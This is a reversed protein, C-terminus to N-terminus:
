SMQVGRGLRLLNRCANVVAAPHLDRLCALNRHCLDATARYCPSCSMNRRIGVSLEGQPGWERADVVGSHIGVTPVGLGAAIHKPGSDNGVFLACSDIFYSLEDLKLQGVLDFVRAREPVLKLISAAIAAEDPGGILAFQLDDTQGLLTILDAFYAPPWQKTLNGAAPHICVLPKQYLGREALRATIPAQLAAWEIPRQILDRDPTGACIVADVLNLLDASIHQRKAALQTDGEFALAIDLWPFKSLHDFGATLAAGAHKLLDRSDVHKRLDIALDFKYSALEAALAALKDEGLESQGLQSRAHFFAFPIVRDIAPELKALKESAPAVLAVLEAEPFADKLRRFAPFATVFDGIHDVKVALIRKVANRDYLPSGAFITETPEADPQVIDSNRDLHPHFFPDGKATLGAWRATFGTADHEDKLDKRSALEHHILRAFPTYVCRLKREHVKLCFDLDNNIVSHSEDFGGLAEFTATKMLMCAGTVAMVDRQTLALGFYGPDDEACFRFAHRGLSPGALFIGAHQVKRDPYLLQPGIVGVDDHRAQDLMAELWDPQIVEIDDNLFLLYEGSAERAAINNFLSWNFSERIEVVVDCNDRLWPKWESSEDVINEICVIEINKHTSLSRLSDLCTKILGRAACTPIVISVLGEVRTKPRCRYTNAILGPEVTWPLRRRKLASKLARMEAEATEVNDKGRRALVRPVHAIESATETLHLVSGFNATLGHFGGHGTDRGADRGADRFQAVTACWPRGVYNSAMLLTPSWDPKFFADERGTGINYRREDAYLFDVSGSRNLTAAFEFLADASLVDGADLPLVLDRPRAGAGIADAEATDPLCIIKARVAGFQDRVMREVAAKIKAGGFIVVTWDPYSQAAVSRLTEPLSEIQEGACNVCVYFMPRFNFHSIVREALLLEATSIRERLSWPGPQEGIAGVDIGFTRLREVNSKTKVKVTVEHRGETLLRHPVSFAFGSLLANDWGYVPFAKAVDERRIGYYASGMSQGDLAFEVAAIGDKAICWGNIAFTSEVLRQAKGDVIEPEDINLMIDDSATAQAAPPPTEVLDIAAVAVRNQRTSGDRLLCEVVVVHEDKVAAPDVTGRFSFGSKRAQEISPFKNGVDARDQGYEAVGLDRGEFAIRITDVGLSSLTWGSLSLTGSKTLQVHDCFFENIGKSKRRVINDPAHLQLTAERAVGGATRAVIRLQKPSHPGGEPFFGTVDAVLLFGSNGANTFQPWAKGVDPRALGLEAPGILESEVSVSVDKIPSHSLTWGQVRLLGRKDVIGEDVHLIMAPDTDDDAEGALPEHHPRLLLTSQFKQEQGNRDRAIIRLPLEEETGNASSKVLQEGRIECTFGSKALPPHKPYAKALDARYLGYNAPLVIDACEVIIEEIEAAAIAFGQVLLASSATIVQNPKPHEVVLLIPRPDASTKSPASAANPEAM